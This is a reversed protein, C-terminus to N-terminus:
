YGSLAVEAEGALVARRDVVSNAAAAAGQHFGCLRVSAACTLETGTVKMGGMSVMRRVSAASSWSARYIEAGFSTALSCLEVDRAPPRDGGVAPGTSIKTAMAPAPKPRYSPPIAERSLRYLLSLTSRWM